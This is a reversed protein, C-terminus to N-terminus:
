SGYAPITLASNSLSVASLNKFFVTQYFQQFLMFVPLPIVAPFDPGYVKKSHYLSFKQNDLALVKYFKQRIRM